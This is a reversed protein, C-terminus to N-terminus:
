SRSDDHVNPDTSRLFDLSHLVRIIAPKYDDNNLFRKRSDFESKFM